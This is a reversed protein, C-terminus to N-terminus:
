INYIYEYEDFIINIDVVVVVGCIFIIIGM